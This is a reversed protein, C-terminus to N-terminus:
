PIRAWRGAARGDDRSLATKRGYEGQSEETNEGQTEEEQGENDEWQEDGGDESMKEKRVGGQRLVEEGVGGRGAGKM